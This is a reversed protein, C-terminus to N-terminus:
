ADRSWLSRGGDVSAAVPAISGVENLSWAAASAAWHRKTSAIGVAGTPEEFDPVCGINTSAMPPM